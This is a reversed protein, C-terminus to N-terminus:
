RPVPGWDPASDWPETRTLPRNGTGDARMVYLDANGGVGNSAHVIWAGDPSYSGSLVLTGEKFSTLQKLGTGDPRVTWFDSQRGDDEAFSRFLIRGDPSFVAHDGGGLEWSAVQHHNSGDIGVAFLAADLPPKSRASNWRKYIVTRSDPSVAPDQADGSWRTRKYVTRQSGSALDILEISSQQIAPEGGFTRVRGQALTVALRRDPTWAPGSADCDGKLRCRFRVKQPKGGDADVTWVSCGAGESCREYAILRGDPSFDPHDDVTRPEPRTLQQEGSGDTGITFIAGHTQADDLYRRFAIRGPPLEVLATRAAAATPTSRDDAGGCGTAIVLTGLLVAPLLITHPATRIM